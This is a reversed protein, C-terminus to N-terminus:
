QLPAMLRASRIVLRNLWPRRAIEEVTMLSSMAFDRELMERIQTLFSGETIFVGLEFNLHLSRSDLNISTVGALIQDVLFIKQHLFADRYRFFRVGARMADECHSLSSLHVLYHDTRSPILIRVEVGRLAAAQLAALLPEDPVFYPTTIWIRERALGFLEMLFLSCAPLADAPGPALVLMTQRFGDECRINWDLDPIQETAWYWDQLFVLQLALVVPGELRLHTDRWHGYEPNRGLYDDGINFGGEFGIVGDVIVIKRHNRFNIQFRNGAGRTSNFRRVQAGCTQLSEIEEKGMEWSGIEDCLVLVTVGRRCCERLLEWFKRGTDDNSITYFQFLVYKRASAISEMMAGYTHDGDILLDAHNGHLFPFGALKEALAQLRELGPIAESRCAHLSEYVHSLKERHERTALRKARIYGRFRARGFILYLPIAVVPVLLLGLLWAAAGRASRVHIVAHVALVAGWLYLIVVIAGISSALFAM